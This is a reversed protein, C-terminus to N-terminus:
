AAQKDVQSAEIVANESPLYKELVNQLQEFAKHEADSTIRQQYEALHQKLDALLNVRESEIRATEHENTAAVHKLVAIRCYGIDNKLLSSLRVGPLWVDALDSTSRNVKALHLVAFTGLGGLIILVSSAGLMLKAAISRDNFW